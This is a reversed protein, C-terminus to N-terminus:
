LMLGYKKCNEDDDGYCQPDAFTDPWDLYDEYLNQEMWVQNGIRVFGEGVDEVPSSSEFAFDSSSSQEADGQASSSSLELSSSTVSELAIDSLSSQEAGGQGSSLREGSSSCYSVENVVNENASVSESDCCTLFTVVITFCCFLLLKGNMYDRFKESSPM